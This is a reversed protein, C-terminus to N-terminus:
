HVSTPRVVSTSGNDDDNADREAGAMMRRVQCVLCNCDDDNEFRTRDTEHVLAVTGDALDSINLDWKEGNGWDANSIGLAIRLEERAASHYKEIEDTLAYSRKRFEEKLKQQRMDHSDIIRKLKWGIEVANATSSAVFTSKPKSM